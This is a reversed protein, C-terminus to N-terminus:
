KPQQEKILNIMNSRDAPTFGTGSSGENMLHNPAKGQNPNQNAPDTAHRGGFTHGSEHTGVRAATKSREKTATPTDEFKRLTKNYKLGVDQAISYINVQTRNNQTDGIKDTLGQAAGDGYQLLAGDNDDSYSRGSTDNGNTYSWEVTAKEDFVVNYNVTRGETDCGGFTSSELAARQNALSTIQENTASSGANNTVRVKNTIHVVDGEISLSAELGELERSNIVRNEAFNYPSQYAYKEALPDISMFRGIVYDYNRWKFSDWNLGLEDQREQEQHKYNYPLKGTTSIPPYLIVDDDIQQFELYDVNYNTHKLGFPYYHSEDKIFVSGISGKIPRSYAYNMRINGLHDKYQYVYNYGPAVPGPTYDIYGEATPFYSLVANKYQYGGDMYDVELVVTGETVTKKVKNGTADYIYNIKKTTSNDFIIQVPLNLHNYTISTIGKNRDTIMNGNLDYTYDNSNNDPSDKFGQPQNIPDAVKVLKDSGQEYTYTLNDIQMATTPDDLGGNRKLSTINGNKDYTINENYSNTVPVADNPKQYYANTLRNLGDYKYGYRRVVNDSDSRWTTEAINGNYLPVVSGGINNAVPENYNIKFAFKDGDTTLDNIDNISKLWGRINYSYDIKQGGTTTGGISSTTPITVKSKLEGLEYYQNTALLQEAPPNVLQNGNLQHYHMLLRDQLSYIFREKVQLETSAAIRKHLANTYLTTGDFDLNSNNQTYGGLYNNTRNTIPRAKADYYTYSTEGFIEAPTTVVRAWGGTAMGKVNLLVSQTEVLTSSTPREVTPLFLYDDYYSATLLKFGTPLIASAVKYNLIIGDINGDGRGVNIITGNNITEQLAARSVPTVDASYWGTIAPRDYADYFNYMWGYTGSGFPSLAPGTAVVRDLKDYVIFEWQKGPLKKEVLRNRSDYKYQYCLNDLYTSTGGSLPPLVYTLNGFQDYVYYTDLKDTGNYTRKLVVQGLGNKFEETTNNTGSTWNEDKTITKYLLNDQYSSVLGFSINYLKNGANWTAEAKLLKVADTGNNTLYSFKITHDNDDNPHGKWPEGPAAQKNVRNLPSSEFFSETYPNSTDGYQSNSYYYDIANDPANNDFVLNSGSGPYPLYQRPQRGYADYEIHTIIDKGSASAKGSVQQIPRGIGDVYNVSINAKTDDVTTTPEKYISTKIYNQAQSPTQSLAVLPLLLLIYLIKQM